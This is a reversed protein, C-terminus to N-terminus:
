HKTHSHQVPNCSIAIASKSDCYMPIKNYRFGYDLLQTRMWIVQAYCASLSVCEAEATSMSTYDQKKSSWSVLKDELFPIGGSTSKCDDNCGQLDADLKATAMSTSITDCKEMGHKFVEEKLPGNFFTTKVDMQYVHFNKHVVYAAFIRVAELRAVPAFSEEFDIGEEQGYGKTVLHSKNQIITNEADITLAYMCMEADTHLRRRTMVLKSPDGIVQKIPHIKTWKDTSRHPQYFEHMNLLDQFTSSSEAEELVPSHFPNYFENKDIALVDEQVPENANISSSSPTDENPLTNAASDNSVKPTRTVYYEEYLPGFLKDVDEKWTKKQRYQNLIKWHIKFIQATSDPVPSSAEMKSISITYLNFNRSDALMDEGKLNRVYCTNLRFAVELDRHSSDPSLSSASSVKYTTTPTKAVSFMSKAVIATAGLNRSKATVPSTFLARKVRSYVFLAYRAVCKELSLMFVDKGTSNM